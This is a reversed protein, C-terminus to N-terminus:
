DAPASADQVCFENGEPDLLVTFHAHEDRVRAGLACLRAVEQARDDSETDLHVRNRAAQVFAAFGPARHPRSTLWADVENGVSLYFGGRQTLLPVLADLVAAFRQTMVLPSYNPNVGKVSM